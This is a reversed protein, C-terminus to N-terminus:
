TFRTTHFFYQAVLDIISAQHSPMSKEDRVRNDAVGAVGAVGPCYFRPPSPTLWHFHRYERVRIKFFQNALGSGRWAPTLMAINVGVIRIRALSEEIGNLRAAIQLWVAVAHLLARFGHDRHAAQKRQQGEVIGAADICQLSKARARVACPWTSRRADLNRGHM